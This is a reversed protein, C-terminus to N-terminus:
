HLLSHTNKGSCHLRDCSAGRVCAPWPFNVIRVSAGSVNAALFSSSKWCSPLILHSSGLNIRSMRIPNWYWDDSESRCVVIWVIFSLFRVFRMMWGSGAASNSVNKRLKLILGTQAKRGRPYRHMHKGNAWFSNRHMSRYSSLTKALTLEDCMSSTM